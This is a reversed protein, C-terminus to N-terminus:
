LAIHDATFKAYGILYHAALGLLLEGRLPPTQLIDTNRPIM